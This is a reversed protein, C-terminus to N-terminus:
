PAGRGDYPHVHPAGRVPGGLGGAGPAADEDRLYEPADEDPPYEPEDVDPPGHRRLELRGGRSDAIRLVDGLAETAAKLGRRLAYEGAADDALVARAGVLVDAGDDLQVMEIEDALSSLSGGSDDTNLFCPKGVADEWPLLRWTPGLVPVTDRDYSM